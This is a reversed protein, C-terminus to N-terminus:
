RQNGRLISPAALRDVINVHRSARERATLSKSLWFRVEADVREYLELM